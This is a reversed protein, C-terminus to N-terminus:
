NMFCLPISLFNLHFLNCFIPDIVEKEREGNAEMDWCLMDVNMDM